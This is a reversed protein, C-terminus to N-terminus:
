LYAFFIQLFKNRVTCIPHIMFFYIIIIILLCSYNNLSNPVQIIKKLFILKKYIKKM